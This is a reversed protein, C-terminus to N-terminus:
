YYDEKSNNTTRIAMGSTYNTSNNNFNFLDNDKEEKETDKNSIIQDIENSVNDIFFDKLDDIDLVKDESNKIDELYEKIDDNDKKGSNIFRHSSQISFNCQQAAM